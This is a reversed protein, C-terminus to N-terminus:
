EDGCEKKNIDYTDEILIVGVGFGKLTETFDKLTEATYEPSTIRLIVKKVDTLIMALLVFDIPRIEEPDMICVISYDTKSSAIYRLSKLYLAKNLISRIELEIYDAVETVSSVYSYNFGNTHIKIVFGDGFSTRLKCVFEGFDTGNVPEGVIEVGSITELNSNIYDFLSEVDKIIGAEIKFMM